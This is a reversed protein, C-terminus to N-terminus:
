SSSKKIIFKIRRQYREIQFHLFCMKFIIITLLYKLKKVMLFNLAM